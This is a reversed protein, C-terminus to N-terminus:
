DPDSTVIFEVQSEAPVIPGPIIGGAPAFLNVQYLDYGSVIFGSPKNPVLTGSAVVQGQPQGNPTVSFDIPISTNNTVTIKGSAM